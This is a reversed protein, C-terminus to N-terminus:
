TSASLVASNHSYWPSPLPASRQAGVCALMAADRWSLLLMKAWVSQAPTM